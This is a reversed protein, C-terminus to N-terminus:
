REIQRRVFGSATLVLGSVVIWGVVAYAVKVLRWFWASSDASVTCRQEQRLDLLPVMVDLAYLMPDIQNGCRIETSGVRPETPVVVETGSYVTAVNSADIKMVDIAPYTGLFALGGGVFWLAVFTVLARDSKLGYGFPLQLFWRKLRATRQRLLLSGVFAVVFVSGWAAVSEVGAGLLAALGLALTVVLPIFSIVRGSLRNFSAGTSARQAVRSVFRSDRGSPSSSIVPAEVVQGRKGVAIGNNFLVWRDYVRREFDLRSLTIETAESQSGESRWVKALQEFPQPRYDKATPIERGYQGEFLWRRRTGVRDLPVLAEEAASGPGVGPESTPPSTAERQAASEAPDPLRETRDYELGDVQLRLGRPWNTGEQDDLTGVRLGRLDVTPPWAGGLAGADTETWQAGQSLPPPSDPKDVAPKGARVSPPQAVPLITEIGNVKLGLRVHAGALRLEPRTLGNTADLKLTMKATGIRLNGEIVSSSFDAVGTIRGGLNLDRGVKLGIAKLRTIGREATTAITADGAVRTGSLVIDGGAQLEMSHEFIADSATFGATAEIIAKGGATSNSLDVASGSARITLDRGIQLGQGALTTISNGDAEAITAEGAVRTGNLVLDGGATLRLSNGLVAEWASFRAAGDITVMGGVTADQMDVPSSGAVSLEGRVAARTLSILDLAAFQRGCETDTGLWVGGSISSRDLALSQGLKKTRRRRSLNAGNMVVGGGVRADALDIIGEAEFRHHPSGPSCCLFVTGRIDAGRSRICRDKDGPNEHDVARLYAGEARVDGGISALVLRLGGYATFRHRLELSGDIRAGYLDFAYRTAEDNWCPPCSKPSRLKAGSAVVSGGVKIGRARVWCDTGNRLPRLGDLILDGDIVASSMHLGSAKCEILSLRSLHSHCADLAPRRTPDGVELICRELKLINAAGGDPGRVNRLDIEGVIIANLIQVGRPAHQGIVLGRVLDARLTRTPALAKWRKQRFDVPEGAAVATKLAEVLGIPPLTPSLGPRSASPVKRIM